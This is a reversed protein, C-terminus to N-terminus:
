RECTAPFSQSCSCLLAPFSGSCFHCGLGPPHEEAGEGQGAGSWNGGGISRHKILHLSTANGRAREGLSAKGETENGARADLQFAPGANHAEPVGAWM